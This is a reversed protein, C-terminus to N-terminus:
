RSFDSATLNFEYIWLTDTPAIGTCSLVVSSGAGELPIEAWALDGGPGGLQARWLTRGASVAKMAPTGIEKAHIGASELRWGFRLSAKGRAARLDLEMELPGAPGAKARVAFRRPYKDAGSNVVWEPESGRFSLQGSAALQTAYKSLPFVRAHELDYSRGDSALPVFAQIAAVEIYYPLNTPPAADRFSRLVWVGQREMWETEPVHQSIEGLFWHPHMHIPRVLDQQYLYLVSRRQGPLNWVFGSSMATAAVPEGTLAEIRTGLDHADAALKPLDAGPGVLARLAEGPAPYRVPAVRARAAGRVAVLACGAALALCLAAGAGRAALKLIRAALASPALL